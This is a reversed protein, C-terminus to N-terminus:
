RQSCHCAPRTVALVSGAPGSPALPAQPLSTRFTGSALRNLVLNAPAPLRSWLDRMTAHATVKTARTLADVVEALGPPTGTPPPLLLAATEARDGSAAVSAAVLWDPIGAVEASWHLLADLGVLRRPRQGSLLADAAARDVESARQVWIALANPDHPLAALMAAFAIM